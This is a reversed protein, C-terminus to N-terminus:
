RTKELLKSQYKTLKVENAINTELLLLHEKNEIEWDIGKIEKEIKFLKDYEVGVEFWQEKHQHPDPHSEIPDRGEAKQKITTSPFLKATVAYDPDFASVAYRRTVILEATERLNDPLAKIAGEVVKLAEKKQVQLEGLRKAQLVFAAQLENKEQKHECRIAEVTVSSLKGNVAKIACDIGDSKHPYMRTPQRDLVYHLKNWRQQIVTYDKRSIEDPSNRVGKILQAIVSSKVKNNKTAELVAEAFCEAASSARGVSLVGGM